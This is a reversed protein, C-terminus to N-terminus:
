NALDFSKWKYLTFIPIKSEPIFDPNLNNFPFFCVVNHTLKKLLREMAEFTKGTINFEEMIIIRLGGINSLSKYWESKEEEWLELNTDLDSNEDICINIVDHPITIIQKELVVNIMKSFFESGGGEPSVIVFNSSFGENELRNKIKSAMWTVDKELVKQYNITIPNGKRHSPPDVEPSYGADIAIEWYDYSPIMLCDDEKSQEPFLILDHALRTENSFPIELECLKCEGDISKKQDVKLFYDVEIADDGRKISLVRERENTSRTVLIALYDNIEISNVKLLELIISFTRATDIMDVILICRSGNPISLSEVGASPNLEKMVDYLNVSKLDYDICVATIPSQLWDSTPCHFIIYTASSKQLSDRVYEKILDSLEDVCLRADFFYRNCYENGDNRKRHFHGRRRIMKREFLDINKESLELIKTKFTTAPFAYKSNEAKIIGGDKDIIVVKSSEIHLELTQRFVDNEDPLFPLFIIFIPGENNRKILGDIAEALHVFFTARVLKQFPNKISILFIDSERYREYQRGFTIDFQSNDKQIADLSFPITRIEKSSNNFECDDKFLKKGLWKFFDIEKDLVPESTSSGIRFPLYAIKKM